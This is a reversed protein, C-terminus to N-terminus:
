QSAGLELGPAVRSDQHLVDEKQGGRARESLISAASQPALCELCGAGKWKSFIPESLVHYPSQPIKSALDGCWTPLCYSSFTVM